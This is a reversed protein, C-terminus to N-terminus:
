RSSSPRAGSPDSVPLVEARTAPRRQVVGRSVAARTRGAAALQSVRQKSLGLIVATEQGNFGAATLEAVVERSLSAATTQAKAAEAAAKRAATVRDTLVRPLQPVVSVDFSDPAAGTVFAIAERVYDEASALSRVQSVAGPVDPVTLRDMAM